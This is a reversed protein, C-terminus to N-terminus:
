FGQVFLLIQKVQSLAAQNRKEAFTASLMIPIDLPNRYQPYTQAAAGVTVAMALLVLLSRLKTM